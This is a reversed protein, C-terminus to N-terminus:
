ASSVISGAAKKAPELLFLIGALVVFLSGILALLNAGVGVVIWGLIALVVLLVGSALPRGSWTRHGLWAFFMALGGVVFLIVAESAAGLAGFPRGLVLDAAGVVLSVLGGLAILAGGLIGFGYGLREETLESM